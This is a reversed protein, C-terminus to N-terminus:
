KEINYKKLEELSYITNNERNEFYNIIDGNYEHLLVEFELMGLNEPTETSRRSETLVEEKGTMLRLMM